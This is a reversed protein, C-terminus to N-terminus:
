KAGQLKANLLKLVGDAQVTTLDAWTEANAKTLWKEIQEEDVKVISLIREIEAIQEANALVVPQSPAEIYDKGYREAFNDYGVDVGGKQLDFRDFEPFGTLRSKDVTATRFGKSHKEVRLTLDLEYTLKDWADPGTGTQKRDRGEGGWLAIEHAVFVVNMDLKTLWAVLQRMKAIAPKKSAGFADKDGLDEAKKAISSQYVKTISDIVLTKYGHKETSLAKVQEIIADFDCAGDDPGMYAGGSAKLRAMYHQLQAGGETDIFYPAPFSLAFQTKGAGPGGFLLLKSHGPKVEEPPRAKLRSAM